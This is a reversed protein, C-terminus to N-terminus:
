ASSPMRSLLGDRPSPSTYLLCDCFEVKMTNTQAHEVSWNISKSHGKENGMMGDTRDKTTNFVTHFLMWAHKLIQVPSLVESPLFNLCAVVAATTSRALSCYLYSSSINSLAGSFRLRFTTLLLSRPTDASTRKSNRAPPTHLMCLRFSHFNLQTVPSDATLSQAVATTTTAPSRALLFYLSCHKRKCCCM